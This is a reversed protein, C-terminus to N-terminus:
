LGASCLPYLFPSPIYIQVKLMRKLWWFKVTKRRRKRSADRARVGEWETASFGMWCIDSEIREENCLHKSLGTKNHVTIEKEFPLFFDCPPFSQFLSLFLSLLFLSLSLNGYKLLLNSTLFHNSCLCDHKHLRTHEPTAMANAHQLGSHM